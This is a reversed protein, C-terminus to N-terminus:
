RRAQGTAASAIARAKESNGAIEGITSTMESAGILRLNM